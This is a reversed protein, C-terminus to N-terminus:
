KKGRKNKPNLKKLFKDHNIKLNTDWTKQTAKEMMAKISPTSSIFAFISMYKKEAIPLWSDKAGITKRPSVRRFVGTHGSKMKALFVKGQVKAKNRVVEVVLKERDKVAV